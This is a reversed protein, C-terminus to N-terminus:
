HEVFESFEGEVYRRRSEETDSRDEPKEKKGHKGERGWRELIAVIYRWNRKNNEVAIRIAEEIWLLPYNKEADKLSEAIMPSLAGINEEYLRFINPPEGIELPPEAASLDPRWKGSKLAELAARGRPSNLFYVIEDGEHPDSKFELLTGRQVARNLADHLSEKDSVGPKRLGTLLEPDGALDSFRLFRFAGEMRDLRWFSYLSIKMEGLDDIIPLLEKFLLSPIPVQQHKGEHFGKFVKM